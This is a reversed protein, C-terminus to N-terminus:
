QPALKSESCTMQVSHPRRLRRGRHSRHRIQPVRLSAPRSLHRAQPSGKRLLQIRGARMATAMRKASAKAKQSAPPNPRMRGQTVPLLCDTMPVLTGPPTWTLLVAGVGRGEIVGMGVSNGVAVGVVVGVAVGVAVDVGVGKGVLVGM